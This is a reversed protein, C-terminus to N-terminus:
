HPGRRKYRHTHTRTNYVRCNTHPHVKKDILVCSSLSVEMFDDQSMGKLCPTRRVNESAIFGKSSNADSRMPFRDIIQSAKIFEQVHEPKIEGLAAMAQSVIQTLFQM